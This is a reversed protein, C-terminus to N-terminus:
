QDNPKGGAADVHAQFEKWWPWGELYQCLAAWITAEPEWQGELGHCSCHSAHVEWWQNGIQWVVIASGQYPETEYAAFIRDAKLLETAQKPSLDFMEVVDQLGGFEGKFVADM